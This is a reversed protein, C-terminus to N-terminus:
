TAHSGDRIDQFSTLLWAYPRLYFRFVSESCCVNISLCASCVVCWVRHRLSQLRDSVCHRLNASCNRCSEHQSSILGKLISCLLLDFQLLTELPKARM